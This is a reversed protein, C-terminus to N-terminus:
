PTVDLITPMGGVQVVTSTQATLPSVTSVGTDAITTLSLGHPANALAVTVGVPAVPSLANTNVNWESVENWLVLAFSGNRRQLLTHHVSKPGTLTYALQTVGFSGGPDALENILSQLAVYSPKPHGSGDTLGYESFPTQGEDVLEYLYTRWVNARWHELLLRLIYHAAISSPVAYQDPDSQGAVAADTYGTETSAMPVGPTMQGAIAINWALSGYTGFSDTGGWGGTGPNRGAFYDHMNGYDADGTFTGAKAFDNPYSISPGIVPLMPAVAKISAYLSQQYTQLDAPWTADNSLDYENPGEIADVSAANPAAIMAAISAAFSTTPTDTGLTTIIDTSIGLAGLAHLRAVSTGADTLIVGDRVHRVGLATLLTEIASFNAYYTASSALHINVGITNVFADSMQPTEGGSVIAVPTPSPTPTAKSSSGSTGSQSPTTPTPTPLMLSNATGGGGCGSM